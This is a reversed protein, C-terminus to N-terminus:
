CLFEALRQARNGGLAEDLIINCFPTPPNSSIFFLIIYASISFVIFGELSKNNVLQIKGYKMGFIAALSDSVSTILMSAIAIEKNFLLATICFGIMM